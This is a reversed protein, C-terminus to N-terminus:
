SPRSIRSWMPLELGTFPLVGAPVGALGRPLEAVRTLPLRHGLLEAEGDFAAADEPSLAIYPELSLQAIGPAFRSLEESGFIHYLPILLWEGTRAEFRAPVEAFFSHKNGDPEFIRVGPDGHRM